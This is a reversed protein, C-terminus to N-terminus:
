APGRPGARRRAYRARIETWVENHCDLCVRSVRGLPKDHRPCRTMGLVHQPTACPIGLERIVNPFERRAFHRWTM